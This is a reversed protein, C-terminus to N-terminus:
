GLLILATGLIVFYFFGPFEFHSDDPAAGGVLHINEFREEGLMNGM